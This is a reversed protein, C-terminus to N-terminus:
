KAKVPKGNKLTYFVDAKIGNRGAIGAWVAIIDDNADREVLFLANGNKGMVCGDYGSSMAAGQTGMASATASTGTAAAVGQIGTASAAGWAGTAVAAAWNGTVVAAGWNGTAAAAGKTGTASAAGRTGTVVAAGCNGASVAAGLAGTVVAAGQNSTAVAAARNGTAATAGCNGTAVAVGHISSVAATGRNSTAAAAGKAGAATSKKSQKAHNFVWTVARAVIESIQIEAHVTIRAAAVKSDRPDRAIEGGLTVEGYRSTGPPYYGFVELPHGEIAHFGGAACRVVSGAHTYTKGIEYQFGLCTLDLNFGKIARIEVEPEATAIEISRLRAKKVASRRTTSKMVINREGNFTSMPYDERDFVYAIRDGKYGARANQEDSM